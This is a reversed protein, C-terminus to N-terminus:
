KTWTDLFQGDSMDGHAWQQIAKAGIRVSQVNQGGLQLVLNVREVPLGADLLEAVRKSIILSSREIEVKVDDVSQQGAPPLKTINAEYNITLASLAGSDFTIERVVVDDKPLQAKLSAIAADMTPTPVASPAVTAIATPAEATPSAGCAALAVALLVFVIWKM